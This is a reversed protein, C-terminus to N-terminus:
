SNSSNSIKGNDGGDSIENLMTPYLLVGALLIFPNMFGNLVFQEMIGYLAFVSLMILEKYGGAKYLRVLMVCLAAFFAIAFIWGCYLLIYMYANDILGHYSAYFYEQNRPLLALGQDHYYKGLIYVRGSVYRDITKMIDNGSSFLIMMVFSFIAGVPISLAYIFKVKKNKVLKEFLIIGWAFFFVIIGTRCFTIKYFIFATLCTGFFWWINLKEYFYYLMLMLLLFITMYAANPESFGLSYVPVEVYQANPVTKYGIDFLGYASGAVMIFAVFLRTWVSIEILKRFCVDKIGIITLFLFLITAKKTMVWIFLGAGLMLAIVVIERLTYRTTVLKMGLLIVGSLMFFKYIQDSSDYGFAKVLVNVAFYGYYAIIGMSKWDNERIWKRIQEM